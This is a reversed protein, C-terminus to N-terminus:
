WDANPSRPGGLLRLNEILARKFFPGKGGAANYENYNMSGISICRDLADEVSGSASENSYYTGEFQKRTWEILGPCYSNLHRKTDDTLDQFSYSVSKNNSFQNIDKEDFIVKEKNQILFEKELISKAIASGMNAASKLRQYAEERLKVNEYKPDDRKLQQYTNNYRYGLDLMAYRNGANASEILYGLALVADKKLGNMGDWLSDAVICKATLNGNEADKKIKLFQEPDYERFTKKIYAREEEISSFEGKSDEAAQKLEDDKLLILQNIEAFSPSLMEQNRIDKLTIGKLANLEDKVTATDNASAIHAKLLNIKSTIQEKEIASEKSAILQNLEPVASTILSSNGSDKLAMGKLAELEAKASASDNTSAIRAKITKIKGTIEDKEKDSEIARRQHLQDVPSLWKGNQLKEGQELRKLNGQMVSLIPATKQSVATNVRSAEILREYLARYNNIDEQSELSSPIVDKRSITTVVSSANVKIRGGDGLFFMYGLGNGSAASRDIISNFSFFRAHQDGSLEDDRYIVYGPDHSVQGIQAWSPQSIALVCFLFFRLMFPKMPTKDHPLVVM